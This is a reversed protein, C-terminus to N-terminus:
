ALCRVSVGDKPQVVMLRKCRAAQRGRFDRLCETSRAGDRGAVRGAECVCGFAGDRWREDERGRSEADPGSGRGLGCPEASELWRMAIDSM